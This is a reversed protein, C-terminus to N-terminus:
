ALALEQCTLHSRVAIEVYVGSELDYRGALLQAVETARSEAVEAPGQFLVLFERESWRAIRDCHRFQTGLKAAAQKMVQEGLAGQLEFRLLSFVLGNRRYAEIQRTIEGCNLLGTSHDTSQTGRLREEVAAAEERMRTLMSGTEHGMSDICQRLEAAARASHASDGPNAAEMRAALEQLRSRHFENRHAMGEVIDELTLIACRLDLDHHDWYRAVVTAYDKLEEELTRASDKLAERTPEFSLRARLQGIRRRYPGGVERCAQGLCDAVATLTRLYCAVSSSLDALYDREIVFPM